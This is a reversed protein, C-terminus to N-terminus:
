LGVQGTCARKTTDVNQCGWNGRPSLAPAAPMEPDAHRWAAAGMYLHSREMM